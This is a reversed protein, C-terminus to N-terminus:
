FSYEIEGEKNFINLLFNATSIPAKTAVPAQADVAVTMVGTETVPAKGWIEERMECSALGALALMGLTIKNILKM